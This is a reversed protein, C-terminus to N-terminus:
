SNCHQRYYWGINPRQYHPGGTNIFQPISSQYQLFHHITCPCLLDASLVRHYPPWMGPKLSLASVPMNLEVTRHKFAGKDTDSIFNLLFIGYSNCIIQKKAQKLISHTCKSYHMLQNDNKLICSYMNICYLEWSKFAHVICWFYYRVINAVSQMRHLDPEWMPNQNDWSLDM